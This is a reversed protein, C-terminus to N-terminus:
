SRYAKKVRRGIVLVTYVILELVSVFSVGLCVGALGGFAGLFDSFTFDPIEEMYTVFPSKFYFIIQVTNNSVKGSETVYYHYDESYLVESCSQINPCNPIAKRQILLTVKDLCDERSDYKTTNYTMETQPAYKQWADVVVGCEAYMYNLGCTEQRSSPTGINSFVNGESSCNSQYPAKLRYIENQQLKVEHVGNGLRLKTNYQSLYVNEKHNKYEDPAFYSIILNDVLHDYSQTDFEFLAFEKMPAMYISKEAGFVFCGDDTKSLEIWEQMGPLYYYMDGEVMNVKCPYFSSFSKNRYCHFAGTFTSDLCFTIVPLELTQREQYSVLTRHPYSLYTQAFITGFYILAACTAITVVGWFIREIKKGHWIKTLGHATFGSSYSQLLEEYQDSTQRLDNSKSITAATSISM